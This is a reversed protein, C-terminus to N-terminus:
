HTRVEFGGTIKVAGRLGVQKDLIDTQEDLVMTTKEIGPQVGGGGGHDGPLGDYKGAGGAVRYHNDGTEWEQTLITAESMERWSKWKMLM